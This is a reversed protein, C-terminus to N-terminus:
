NASVGSVSSKVRNERGGGGRGRSRLDRSPQVVCIRSCETGSALSNSGRAGLVNRVAGYRSTRTKRM